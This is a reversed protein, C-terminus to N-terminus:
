FNNLSQFEAFLRAMEPNKEAVAQYLIAEQNERVMKDMKKKLDERKKRMIKRNEFDKFNLKCIVERTIACGTYEDQSQIEIVKAAQFGYQTDVLVDDGEQVDNDFLAFSYMKDTNVGQLMKVKAVRYKGSVAM